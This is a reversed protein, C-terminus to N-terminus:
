PREWRDFYKIFIKTINRADDIGRHHTGELTFGEAKLAKGMGVLGIKRRIKAYQHKVSIHNELWNTPLHHLLCDHRFQGKDYQGWSCLLYETDFSAIWTQFKEVVVPFKEAADVEEQTITTLEKCFDSLIPNLIPQIFAAFEGVIEQKDNVCVAGIEIIENPKRETATAKDWCTAELDVIIYHM